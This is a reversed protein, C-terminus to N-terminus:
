EAICRVSCGYTRNVNYTNAVGINFDLYWARGASSETSSWYDGYYGRGYLTGDVNDRYGAAPLMLNDGFKKGASYNTASDSFTGVNTKTNNAIVGEWQAKTPVRYGTPCPDDPTKSGDDWSGNGAVTTNWGTIAGDNAQGAGSGTPGPAAEAARGWQWYGGNIEWSPTFPDATTNAAGLNYCSFEKWNGSAIFVGCGAYTVFNCTQGGIALAFTAAGAGSPTGTIAFSLSGSGTAFNGSSLTATLGTVGTSSLTQGSYPGGNGATYPVSTTIGTNNQSTRIVGSTTAAACNLTATGIVSVTVDLSCSQGGISLAFSATGDSSPTGTISCTLTGSGVSFGGASLTATLGTVGTSTVTQGSYFGGDGGTYPVSASVGSAAQGSTLTGTVVAGACNLGAITGAAVTFPVSCTFGGSSLSFNASGYSSPVGTVTWSLNGSGVAYNGAPLTAELGTIGTSSASQSAYVGGNGGTYPIIVESGAASANGCDLGSIVGTRCKVREWRPASPSGQNIELCLTGTNFIILGRAPSVIADRGATSLRTFLFGKDTGQVDLIASPDPTNDGVVVQGWLGCPAILLAAIALRIISKTM